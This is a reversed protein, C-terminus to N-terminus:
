SYLAIEYYTNLFVHTPFSMVGDVMQTHHWDATPGTAEGFIFLIYICMWTSAKWLVLLM